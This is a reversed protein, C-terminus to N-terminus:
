QPTMGMMWFGLSMIDLTLGERLGLPLLLPLPRKRSRGPLCLCLCVHVCFCLCLSVSLNVWIRSINYVGAHLSHIHRGKHGCVRCLMHTHMHLYICMCESHTHVCMIPVYM